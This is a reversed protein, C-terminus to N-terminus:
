IGMKQREMYVLIRKKRGRMEKSIKIILVNIPIHKDYHSCSM